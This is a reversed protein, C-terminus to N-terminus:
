GPQQLGCETAAAAFAQQVEALAAPDSEVKPNLELVHATGLKAIGRDALCEAAQKPLGEALFVSVLDARVGLTETVTPAAAPKVAPGDAGPDCADLVAGEFGDADLPIVSAGPIAEAWRQAARQFRDASAVGKVAVAVRICAPGGKKARYRVVADDTWDSVAALAEEAGVHPALVIALSVEGFDGESVDQKIRVEGPKLKPKPVQRAKGEAPYRDPHVVQSETKPWTRLAQDLARGVGKEGRSVRLSDLFRPGLEYPLGFVELFV